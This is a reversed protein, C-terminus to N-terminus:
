VRKRVKWRALRLTILGLGVLLMTRPEPVSSTYAQFDPLVVFPAFASPRIYLPATVPTDSVFGFFQVNAASNSANTVPYDCVAPTLEVCWLGSGSVVSIHIGFAYVGGAPFAVTVKQGALTATLRTSSVTFNAPSDSGNFGLFDIDTGNANYLGGPALDGASFTLIPSLLTLGGIAGNFTAEVSAGGAYYTTTAQVPLALLTTLTLLPISTRLGLM